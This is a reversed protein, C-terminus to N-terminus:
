SQITINIYVHADPRHFTQVSEVSRIAGLHPPPIHSLPLWWGSAAAAAGAEGGGGGSYISRHGMSRPREALPPVSSLAGHRRTVWEFIGYVNPSDKDIPSEPLTADRWSPVPYRVSCLACWKLYLHHGRFPM